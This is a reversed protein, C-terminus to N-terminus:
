YGRMAKTLENIIYESSPHNHKLDTNKLWNIIVDITYEATYKFVEEVTHDCIGNKILGTEELIDQIQHNSLNLLTINNEM